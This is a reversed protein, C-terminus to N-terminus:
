LRDHGGPLHMPVDYKMGSIDLIAQADAHVTTNVSRLIPSVDISKKKRRMLAMILIAASVIIVASVALGLSSDDGGSQELALERMSESLNVSAHSADASSTVLEPNPSKAAAEETSPEDTSPCSNAAICTGDQFLPKDSPCGCTAKCVTSCIPWPDACTATCPSGCSNWTQGGTCSLAEFAAFDLPLADDIVSGLFSGSSSTLKAETLTLTGTWSQEFFSLTLNGRSTHSEISYNIGAVTQKVASIMTGLQSGQLQACAISNRSRCLSEVRQFGFEALREAKEYYESDTPEIATWGGLQTLSARCAGVLLLFAGVRPKM